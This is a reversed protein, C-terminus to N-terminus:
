DTCYSLGNTLQIYIATYRDHDSESCSMMAEELFYDKAEERDAWIRKCDNCVTIVRNRGNMSLEPTALM